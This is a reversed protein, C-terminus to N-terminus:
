HFKEQRGLQDVAKGVRAARTEPRKAEEIWKVYLRRNGPSLTDWFVQAETVPTLAAALDAPAEVVRPQTDHWLRVKVTDGPRKGLKERIAKVFVICPGAGMNAIDGQYPEGDFEIRVPVLNGKGFCAKPDWPFALFSASGDGTGGGGVTATWEYVQPTENM